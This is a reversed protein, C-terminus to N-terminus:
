LVEAKGKIAKDLAERLEVVTDCSVCCLDWPISVEDDYIPRIVGVYVGSDKFDKIFERYAYATMEGNKREVIAPGVPSIFKCCHLNNKILYHNIGLVVALRGFAM